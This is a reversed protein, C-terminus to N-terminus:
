VVDRIAKKIQNVCWNICENIDKEWLVLVNYGRLKLGNMKFHDNRIRIQQKELLESPAYMEPNAHWYNGHTEIVLNHDPLYFDSVWFAIKEQERFNVNLEELVERIKREISTEPREQGLYMNLAKISKRRAEKYCENNCYFSKRGEKLKGEYDRRLKPFEEGCESCELSVYKERYHMKRLDYKTVWKAVTGEVVGFMEAIEKATEGKTVFHDFLWDRNQYLMEPNLQSLKEERNVPIGYPKDVDFKTM